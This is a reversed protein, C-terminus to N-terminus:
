EQDREDEETDTDSEDNLASLVTSTYDTFVGDVLEKYHDNVLAM